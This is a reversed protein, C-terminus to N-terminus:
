TVKAVALFQCKRAKDEFVEGRGNVYAEGDTEGVEGMGM